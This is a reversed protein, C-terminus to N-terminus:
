SPRSTGRLAGGELEGILGRVVESVTVGREAAYVKLFRHMEPDLDVTIRVKKKPAEPAPELGEPAPATAASEGAPKRERTTVAKMRSLIDKPSKAKSV